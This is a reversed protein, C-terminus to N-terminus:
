ERMQGDGHIVYKYSTLERVGMPGRAHFKDTSIGIEAGLGFQGGDTFRTSANVYVCASDVQRLFREANAEDDTVIAETLGSSYRQIHELVEEMSDVVRVSLILDLYETDWDEETAPKVQDSVEQCREDGRVEVGSDLLDRVIAQLAERNGCHVLLTEVANCVGPRQIKANHILKVAMPVDCTRDVYIHCLGRHHKIVPVTAADSVAKILAEGGRPVILSIYEDLRAMASVAERDTTPVIEVSSEPLGVDVCGEQMIAGLALNSNIAESGGRLLCTNGSKLCLGAADVTVNPRSEYIIGVVGLPVSVRAIRLGNPREWEELVRGVPDPLDAVDRLGQAMEELRPDTITLRDIMAPSLGKSEAGELDIANARMIKSRRKHLLEACRMLAENRKEGSVEALVRAARRARAARETVIDRVSM